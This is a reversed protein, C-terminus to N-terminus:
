SWVYHYSLENSYTNELGKRWYMNYDFCYNEFIHQPHSINALALIAYNHKTIYENMSIMEYICM